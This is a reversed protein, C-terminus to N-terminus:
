GITCNCVPRGGEPVETIVVEPEEVGMEIDERSLCTRNPDDADPLEDAEDKAGFIVKNKPTEDVKAENAKTMGDEAEILVVDPVAENAEKMGEIEVVIPLVSDQGTKMEKCSVLESKLNCGHNYGPGVQIPQTSDDKVENTKIAATASEHVEVEMNTISTDQVGDESPEQDEFLPDMEDDVEKITKEGVPRDSGDTGTTQTKSSSTGERVTWTAPKRDRAVGPEPVAENGEEITAKNALAVRKVIKMEVM